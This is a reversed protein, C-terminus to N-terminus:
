VRSKRLSRVEAMAGTVAKEVDPRNREEASGADWRLARLTRAAMRCVQRYQGESLPCSALHPLLASKIARGLLSSSLRPSSHPLASANRSWMQQPSRASPGPMDDGEERKRQRWPPSRHEPTSRQRVPSRDGGRNLHRGSATTTTAESSLVRQRWTTGSTTRGETPQRAESGQLRSADQNLQASVRDQSERQPFYPSRGLTSDRVPAPGSRAAVLRSGRARAAAIERRISTEYSGNSSLSAPVPRHNRRRSSQSPTVSGHADRPPTLLDIASAQANTSSGRLEGFSVRGERLDQWRESIRQVHERALSPAAIIEDNHLHRGVAPVERRSLRALLPLDDDDGEGPVQPRGHNSVESGRRLRRLRQRPQQRADPQSRPFSVTADESAEEEEETSLMTEEEEDDDVIFGDDDESEEEEEELEDVENM